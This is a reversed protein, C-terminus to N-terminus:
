AAIIPVRRECHASTSEFLLRATSGSCCGSSISRAPPAKRCGSAQTPTASVHNRYLSPNDDSTYGTSTPAPKGHQCTATNRPGLDRWLFLLLSEGHDCKHDFDHDGGRNGHRHPTGAIWNPRDDCPKRDHSAAIHCVFCLLGLANERAALTWGVPLDHSGVRDEANPHRERAQELAKAVVGRWSGDAHGRLARGHARPPRGRM